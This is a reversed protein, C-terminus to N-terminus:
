AAILEPQIIFTNIIDIMVDKDNEIIGDAVMDHLKNLILKIKPGAPIGLAMIDNGNVALSNTNVPIEKEQFHLWAQWCANTNKFEDFTYKCKSGDPLIRGTHDAYQLMVLDLPYVNHKLMDDFAKAWTANRLTDVYGYMHYRILTTIYDTDHKSFKYGTLLDRVQDAGLKDHGYARGNEDMTDIKGYDHLWAALCLNANDTLKCVGKYVMLTHDILSETHNKGATMAVMDEMKPFIRFMLGTDILLDAIAPHPAAKMLEKAITEVPIGVLSCSRLIKYLDYHIIMNYKSAFRLARVIRNLDESIREEANGVCRLTKTHIDNVVNKKMIFGTKDMAIANITFDCTDLHELITTGFTTRDGGRRFTSIEIDTHPISVTFIRDQGRIPVAEPVYKMIVDPTASCFLDWDHPTTNYPSLNHITAFTSLSAGGVIYIQHQDFRQMVDSVHDPIYGSLDMSYFQYDMM